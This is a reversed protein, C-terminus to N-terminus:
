DNDRRGLAAVQAARGSIAARFDDIQLGPKPETSNMDRASTAVFWVADYLRERMLRECFVGYREKYSAGVFVQDPQFRMEPISVPASSRETDELIFVYGLWPRVTGFAGSEFARWIDVANGIAEETRNNFNNGFSPGVQSKLEIAAVLVDGDVIVLDWKKSPRYFGPLTIGRSRHINSPDVGHAIFIEAVFDRLANLHGGGTVAGRSGQDSRGLEHQRTAQQDRGTWFSEIADDLSSPM